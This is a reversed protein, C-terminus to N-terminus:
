YKNMKILDSPGKDLVFIDIYLADNIYSKKSNKFTVGYKENIIRSFCVPMHKENLYNIIKFGTEKSFSDSLKLLKNYENRTMITDVDHDWPIIDKGRIAGLLTGFMIYYTLNHRICFNHFSYLMEKEINQAENLSINEKNIQRCSQKM